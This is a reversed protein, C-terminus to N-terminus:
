EAVVDHEGGKPAIRAMAEYAVLAQLYGVELIAAAVLRFGAKMTDNPGYCTPLTARAAGRDIQAADLQQMLSATDITM